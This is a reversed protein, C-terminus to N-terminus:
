SQMDRETNITVTKPSCVSRVYFEFHCSNVVMGPSSYLGDTLMIMAIQLPTTVGM